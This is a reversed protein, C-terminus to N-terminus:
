NLTYGVRILFPSTPPVQSYSLFDWLLSLNTQKLVRAKTTITKTLGILGSKTWDQLRPLQSFAPLPTTYNYEFGGTASFSGKIKLQIFSRLGVGQNTFAIHQIGNGWGLKYSAGIGILNDHGLKYALSLGLDTVSPFYADTRTTQFNVGYELRHLFSKTHQENPTFDPMDANGNGAGLASLRAKYTDLASQATQLNSQLASLGAAGGASVKAQVQASVADKTQMGALGKAATYSGPVQFLGGLSSHTKMFTQFDPRTNLLALARQELQDPNNWLEKYARLQQSYYYAERNIGAYKGGLLSQLQTHQALFQAIQQKRQQFYGKIQDADRMKAELAQLESSANQLQALKATSGGLLEPHQQLYALSGHLSDLYPQYTGGLSRNRTGTDTALLHSLNAYQQASGAFLQSAATSDHRAMKQQFRNEQKAMQQLYQQAQGTIQHNLGAIRAEIKSIWRKPLSLIRDAPPSYSQAYVRTFLSCGTLLLYCFISKKM